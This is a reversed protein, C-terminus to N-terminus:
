NEFPFQFFVIVSEIKNQKPYDIRSLMPLAFCPAQTFKSSPKIAQQGTGQVKV